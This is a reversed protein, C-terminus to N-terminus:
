CNILTGLLMRFLLSHYGSLMVIMETALQSHKRNDVPKAELIFTWRGNGHHMSKYRQSSHQRTAREILELFKGFLYFLLYRQFGKPKVALSLKHNSLGGQFVRPDFSQKTSKSLVM